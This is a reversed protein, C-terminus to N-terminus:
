GFSLGVQCLYNTGDYLCTMMDIAGAGTSLTPAAGAPWKVSAPWTTTRGGTGDQILILTFSGVGYSPATFSFTVNHGLTIQQKNSNNWNITVNNGSSNIYSEKNVLTNFMSTGNVDLKAQINSTAIGINHNALDGYITDAIDLQNSDGVVPLLKNNYGILINTSGTTSLSGNGANYGIMINNDGCDYLGAQYGLHIGNSTWPCSGSTGRRGANYGAAINYSGNVLSLIALSGLATNYNGHKLALISHYGMATNYLGDTIPAYLAGTGLGMNYSGTQNGAVSNYGIAINGNGSTNGYLGQYGAAVNDNGSINSLSSYYGLGLNRSGTTNANLSNFGAATNYNTLNDHLSNGGIATNDHGSVNDYLAVSGLASNNYGTTTSYMTQLGLATNSNSTSNNRLANVGAVTNFGLGGSTNLGAGNGLYVSSANTMADTLDDIALNAGPNALNFETGADNKFYLKSDSSKVYIKGFSGTAAPASTEAFSMVGNVTLTENPTNIMIGVQSASSDAYIQNTNVTFDGAGSLAINLNQGATPTFTVGSASDFSINSDALSLATSNIDLVADAAIQLTKSAKIFNLAGNGGFSGSDNFEFNTNAGGPTIVAALAGNLISYVTGDDEQFYIRSNSSNIYLKGFNATATPVSTGKLALIGDITVKENPQNTGIGLRKNIRDWYLQANNESIVGQANSFLISGNTFDGDFSSTSGNFIGSVTVNSFNANAGNISGNAIIKNMNATTGNVVGSSILKATTITNSNNITTSNLTGVTLNTFNINGFNGTNFNAITGNVVGSSILKGVNGAGSFNGTSFNATTGNVSGSAILKGVNIASSFNANTGNITLGKITGNVDLKASPNATGIGVRANTGNFILDNNNVKFEGASAITSTLNSGSAPVLTINGTSQTFTTNAGDLSIDTDAISVDTSDIDLSSAAALSVSTGSDFTLTGSTYNDSTDSRLFSGANIGDIANSNNFTTLAGNNFDVIKITKTTGSEKIKAFIDGPNANAAGGNSLYLFASGNDPDSLSSSSGGGSPAIAITISTYTGLSPVAMGDNDTTDAIIQDKDCTRIALADDSFSERSTYGSINAPAGLFGYDLAGFKLIKTNATTTTVAATAIEGGSSTGTESDYSDIPNSSNAGSYRFVNAYLYDIPVNSTFNYSNPESSAIRYWARTRIGPGVTTIPTWGAPASLTAASLSTLFGILLDGDVTGSPKNVTAISASNIFGSNSTSEFTVSGGGGSSGDNINRIVMAGNVDLSMDPSFHNLALRKNTRDWFFHPNDQSIVGGANSFFVSGDTFDGDFSSTTGNITGSLIINTFNGTTFNATTGNVNNTVIVKDFNSSGSVTITNATITTFNASTGNVVLGKITGNVELKASPDATGIGVRANTGNFVLDNSNIKFEGGSAVTGVFNSGSAPVLSISGASQTFSTNAGDLVIGTDAISLDGNVDFRTGSDTILVGSSFHDSTDSRLFQLSDLSDFTSADGPTLTPSNVWSALGNKDSELIKGAGPNGGRIMMQGNVDLKVSPSLIGIGLNKAAPIYEVGAGSYTGAFVVGNSIIQWIIAILLFKRKMAIM